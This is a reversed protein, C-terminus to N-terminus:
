RNRARSPMFPNGGASSRKPIFGSVTEVFVTDEEDLGEIIEVFDDDSIGTKVPVSSRKFGDKILVFAGEKERRIAEVPLRLVSERSDEVISVNATMGSRFIAPVHAPLIDVEYMTVNNVLTSEYSIHDVSAEVKERPYADLSVTSRQGIKVRGIDTEDVQAKVILRDSLVIVAEASTVTQGPEVARVIVEGDIPAILPTPKYAELWYQLSEEGKARAADLLAARETSSMWAIIDGKKVRDGEKILIEEVRGNIPPKVQLRNQPQVSGTTAILVEIPGRSPRIEEVVTKKAKGPSFLKWALFVAMVSVVVFWKFYRKNM